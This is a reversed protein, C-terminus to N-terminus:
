FNYPSIRVKKEDGKVITEGHGDCFVVNIKNKHRLWPVRTGLWGCKIMGALTGFEDKQIAANGEMYNTTFYSLIPAATIM